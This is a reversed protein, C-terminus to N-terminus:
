ERYRSAKVGLVKSVRSPRGGNRSIIFLKSNTHEEFVLWGIWFGYGLWGRREGELGSDVHGLCGLALYWRSCVAGIGWLGCFNNVSAM